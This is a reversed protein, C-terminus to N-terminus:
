KAPTYWIPSSWAREQISEPIGEHIPLGSKVSDFTTVNKLPNPGDAGRGPEGASDAALAASTVVGLLACGFLQFLKVAKM